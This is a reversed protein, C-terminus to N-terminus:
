IGDEDHHTTNLYQPPRVEEVIEFKEIEVRHTRASSFRPRRTDGHCWLVDWAGDTKRRAWYHKGTEPTVAAQEAADPTPANSM